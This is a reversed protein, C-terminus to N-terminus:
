TRLGILTTPSTFRWRHRSVKRNKNSQAVQCFQAAGSTLFCCARSLDLLSCNNGSGARRRSNKGKSQHIKGSRMTRLPKVFTRKM